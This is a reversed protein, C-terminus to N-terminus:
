GGGAKDRGWDVLQGFKQFYTSMMQDSMYSKLGDVLLKRGQSAANGGMGGAAGMQGMGGGGGMQGMGGGGGGMQGMGGGGGMQAMGGGGGMQGMAGFGGMHDMGSSGGTPGMGRAEGMLPVPGSSRRMGGQMDMGGGIRMQGGGYMFEREMMDMEGSGGMLPRMPGMGGSRERRSQIFDREM